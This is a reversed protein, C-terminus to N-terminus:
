SLTGLFHNLVAKEVDVRKFGKPPEYRDKLINADKHVIIPQEDKKSNQTKKSGEVM